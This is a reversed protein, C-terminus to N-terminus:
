SSPTPINHRCNNFHWRKANGPNSMKGCHPCKIQKERKGKNWPTKGKLKQKNEESWKKGKGPHDNKSYYSKLSDSMKKKVSEKISGTKKGKNWPNIGKLKNRHEESINIGKSHHPRDEYHKKLSRSIKEKTELSLNSYERTENPHKNEKYYNELSSSIKKKSSENYIRESLGGTKLNYTDKRKVYDENVIEKEKEIMEKRNDFIFLIEKKFNKIGYKKIEEKIRTGSGMYGDNLDETEHLGTYEESTKINKIRYITYYKM